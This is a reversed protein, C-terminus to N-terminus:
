KSNFFKSSGDPTFLPFLYARSKTSTPMIARTYQSSPYANKLGELVSSMTVNIEKM